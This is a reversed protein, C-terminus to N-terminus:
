FFGWCKVQHVDIERRWKAVLFILAVLKPNDSTIDNHPFLAKVFVNKKCQSCNLVFPPEFLTKTSKITYCLFLLFFSIIFAKKYSILFFNLLIQRFVLKKRLTWTIVRNIVYVPSSIVHFLLNNIFGTIHCALQCITDQTHVTFKKGM